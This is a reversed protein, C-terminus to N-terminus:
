TWTEENKAHDPRFIQVNGCNDCVLILWLSIGVLNFGFDQIDLSRSRNNPSTNDAVVKYTGIGCYSCLQPVRLDIVHSKAEILRIITDTAERVDNANPLRANPKECITKDFLDYIFFLDPKTEGNTLDYRPDRHVERDFVRGALMWYLIKGLSYVDAAPTIQDAIGHALEPAMYFRSGVQEDNMTVRDGSESIFCLGFDGVVPTMDERLFINDPKLDRHTIGKNHAHAYGVGHCIISFMRLRDLLPLRSMVDAKLCGRVCYEAVFYPRESKLNKDKIQLINPHSLELCANVENEFRRFRKLNKLRKLVFINEPSDNVDYVLFTHAQGGEDLSGKVKWKNDYIEAM